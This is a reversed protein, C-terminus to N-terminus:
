SFIFVKAAVIVVVGVCVWLVVQMKALSEAELFAIEKDLQLKVEAQTLERPPERSELIAFSSATM